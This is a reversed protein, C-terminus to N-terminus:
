QLDRLEDLTQPIQDRFGARKKYLHYKRRKKDDSLQSLSDLPQRNVGEVLQDEFDIVRTRGNSKEAQASPVLGVCMVLAFIIQKM